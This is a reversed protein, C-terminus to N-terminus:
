GYNMGSGYYGGPMGMIHDEDRLGIILIDLIDSIGIM